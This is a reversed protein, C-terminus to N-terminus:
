RGGRPNEDWTDSLRATKEEIILIKEWRAPPLHRIPDGARRLNKAHLQMQTATNMRMAKPYVHYNLMIAPDLDWGVLWFNQEPAADALAWACVYPTHLSWNVILLPHAPSAAAAKNLERRRERYIKLNGKVQYGIAYLALLILATYFLRRTQSRANPM